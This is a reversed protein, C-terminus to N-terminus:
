VEDNGVARPFPDRRPAVAEDCHVQGPHPRHLRPALHLWAPCRALVAASYPSPSHENVLSKRTLFANIMTGAEETAAMRSITEAERDLHAEFGDAYGSRILARAHGLAGAPAQALKLALTEAETFLSEQDAIRSVIGLAHADQASIARSTLTLDLARTVGVARPLLWSQGCDPTLGVATYATVFVSQPDALVLDSLLTLSLGAGAASGQVATVVPKELAALARVADHAAHALELVYAGRDPAARMSRLDGGVCFKRGSGRLLVARASDDAAVQRLIGLLAGSVPLDLANGSEPRNLTISAVGDRVNLLVPDTAM